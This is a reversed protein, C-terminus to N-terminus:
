ARTRNRHVVYEMDTIAKDDAEENENDGKNIDMWMFAMNTVNDLAKIFDIDDPVEISIFM